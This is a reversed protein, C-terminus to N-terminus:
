QGVSYAKWVAVVSENMSLLGTLISLANTSAIWLSISSKMSSASRSYSSDFYICCNMKAKLNLIKVPKLSSKVTLSLLHFPRPSSSLLAVAIFGRAVCITGVACLAIHVLRCVAFCFGGVLSRLPLHVLRRCRWQLWACTLYVHYNNNQEHVRGERRPRTHLALRLADWAASSDTPLACVFLAADSTWPMQCNFANSTSILGTCPHSSPRRAAVHIM